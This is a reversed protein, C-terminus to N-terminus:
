ISSQYERFSSLTESASLINQLLAAYDWGIAAAAIATLSDQDERGPRGRGTM